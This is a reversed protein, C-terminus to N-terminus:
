KEKVILTGLTTAGVIIVERGTPIDTESDTVAEMESYRDQLVLNVKGSGSRGAPITIYVVGAKGVANKPNINGSSQLKLLSRMLLAVVIMAVSGALFAGVAAFWGPAGGEILASGAWGFVAFFAVFGRVTFIRFDASLDDPSDCNSFDDRPEFGDADTDIDTDVGDPLDSDSDHDGMGLLLLATQIILVLTAPIAAFMFAQQIPPMAEWWDMIFM